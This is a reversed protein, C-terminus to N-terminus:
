YGRWNMRGSAAAAMASAAFEQRRPRSAVSAGTGSTTAAMWLMHLADPGDDHDAKPFHRLQEVLATQSAHLLILGNVMHPQLTEIRLRNAVDSQFTHASIYGQLAQSLGISASM